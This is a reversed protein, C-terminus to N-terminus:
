DQIVKNRGPIGGMKCSYTHGGIHTCAREMEEKFEDFELSRPMIETDKDIAPPYSQRAREMDSDWRSARELEAASVKPVSKRLTSLGRYVESSGSRGPVSSIRSRPNQNAQEVREITIPQMQEFEAESVTLRPHDEARMTGDALPHQRTQEDERMSITRKLIGLCKYDPNAHGCM